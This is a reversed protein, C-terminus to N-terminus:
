AAHNAVRQACRMGLAFGIWMTDTEPDMYHSFQGNVTVSELPTNEKLTPTDNVMREFYTRMVVKPLKGDGETIDLM